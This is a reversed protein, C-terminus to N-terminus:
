KGLTRSYKASASGWGGSLSVKVSVKFKKHARRMAIAKKSLRVSVSYTGAKAINRYSTVVRSGSVKIRGRQNAQVTIRMTKSGISVRGLSTRVRVQNSETSKTSGDAAATPATRSAVPGAGMEVCEDRVCQAPPPAPNQGALGGGVKADYVDPNDDTDQSVLGENTQFYVDSGNATVDIFSAPKNTVGPSILTLQGDKYAYVDNVGNHDSPLLRTPTDFYVTGDSTIARPPANGLGRQRPTMHAKGVSGSDADCSVCVSDGAETDYLHVQDDSALWAFYRGDPSTYNPMAATAIRDSSVDDLVGNRWVVTKSGDDFYATQGDEGAGYLGLSGSGALESDVYILDGSTTDYRYLADSGSPAPTDDTLQAPTHFFVYRGSPTVWDLTGPQIVAPDDLARRSRSIAVPLQGAKRIYVGGSLYKNLDYAVVGGDTSAISAKIKAEAVPTVALPLAPITGNELTSVLSLGDARSWRYLQRDAAGPVFEAEGWFLVWSFDPAGAAFVLGTASVAALSLYALNGPAGAVFTYSGTQLDKIYLNGGGAFAGGPALVRNSTVLAHRFDESVANTSAEFIGNAASVPADVAVWNSWSDANRRIVHSQRILASEANRPAQVTNVAIVPDGSDAANVRLDSL